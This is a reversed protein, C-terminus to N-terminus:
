LIGRLIEEHLATVAADLLLPLPITFAVANTAVVSVWTVM